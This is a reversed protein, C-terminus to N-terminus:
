LHLILHALTLHRHLDRPGSLKELVEAREETQHRQTEADPPDRECTGNMQSCVIVSEGTM